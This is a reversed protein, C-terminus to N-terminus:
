MSSKPAMNPSTPCPAIKISIPQSTEFFFCFSMPPRKIRMPADETTKPKKYPETKPFSSIMSARQSLGKWFMSWTSIAAMPKPM